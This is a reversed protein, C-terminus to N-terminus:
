LKVIANVSESPLIKTSVTKICIKSSFTESDLIIIVVTRSDVIVEIVTESLLESGEAVPNVNGNINNVIKIAKGILLILLM